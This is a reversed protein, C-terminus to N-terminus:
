GGFGPFLPRGYKFFPWPISAIIILVAISYFIAARMFKAGDTAARKSVSYGVQAIVAALIMGTGHEVAYFRLIPDKMAAAFNAMAAHTIPSVAYLVIGIIVQLNLFSTFALGSMQDPKRWAAGSVSGRWMRFLTWVALILVVWRM